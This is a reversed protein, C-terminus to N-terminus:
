DAYVGAAQILPKWRAIESRVKAELAAPTAEEKKSPSTALAAFRQAVPREGLAFQLARVLRDVVPQPTGAPAWVGHWIGLEFNMGQEKATKVNPIQELRNPSTVLYAKVSGTQIQPTTTTTQDCMFDVQDGLIDTMAPGTGPYPVTTVAQQIQSMFLMGCLHSASGVGANAMTVTAANRKVYDILGNLDSAPLRPRGIITMPVETVLGIHAFSNLTQYPLRRYLTDSTAMGIHWLLITYGDKPANAVRAAGTTGGAGGVNEVVVQQGLDRSMAEAIVRGVTDTPGGAAFPVILTIPRSPFQQQAAAGGAILSVAAFVAAILSRKM